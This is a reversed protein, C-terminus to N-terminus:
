DEKPRPEEEVVWELITRNFLEKLDHVPLGLMVREKAKQQIWWARSCNNVLTSEYWEKCQREEAAACCWPLDQLGTPCVGEAPADTPVSVVMSPVDGALAESDVTVTTAPAEDVVAGSLDGVATPAAMEVQVRGTSNTEGENGATEQACVLFACVVAATTALAKM